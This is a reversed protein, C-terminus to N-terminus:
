GEGAIRASDVVLETRIEAHEELAACSNLGQTNKQVEGALSDGVFSHVVVITSSGEMKGVLVFSDSAGVLNDALDSEQESRKTDQYGLSCLEVCRKGMMDAVSRLLLDWEAPRCDPGLSAM